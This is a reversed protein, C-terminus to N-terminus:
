YSLSRDGIRWSVDEAKVRLTGGIGHLSTTYNTTLPDKLKVEVMDVLKPQGGFCCTGNDRCLVFSKIGKLESTPYMYGNIYIKKGDLEQVEPPIAGAAAKQLPEYTIRLYDKPVEYAKFRAYGGLGGVLALASLAVGMRAAGRGAMDYRRIAGLGRCGLVVGVVPVIAFVWPNIDDESVMLAAVVSLGAMVLSVAAAPSIPRYKPILDTAFEDNLTSEAFKAM